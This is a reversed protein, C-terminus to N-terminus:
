SKRPRGKRRKSKAASGRLALVCKSLAELTLQGAQWREKLRAIDEEVDYDFALYPDFDPADFSVGLELALRYMHKCPTGRSIFDFCDCSSQSAVYPTEDRGVIVMTKEDQNFAAVSAPKIKKARDLREANELLADDPIDWLGFKM